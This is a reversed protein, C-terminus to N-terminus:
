PMKMYYYNLLIVMVIAYGRYSILYVVYDEFIAKFPPINLETREADGGWLVTSCKRQKM